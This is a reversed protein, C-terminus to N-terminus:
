RGWHLTKNNQMCSLGFNSNQFLCLVLRALYHAMSRFFGSVFFLVVAACFASCACILVYLATLISICAIRDFSGREKGM